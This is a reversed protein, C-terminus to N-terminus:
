FIPEVAHRPLNSGIKIKQKRLVYKSYMLVVSRRPLQVTYYCMGIRKARGEGGEGEM